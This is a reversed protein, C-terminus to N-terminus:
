AKHFINYYSKVSINIIIKRLILSISCPHYHRRCKNIQYFNFMEKAILLDKENCNLLDLRSYKCILLHAFNHKIVNLIKRKKTRNIDLKSCYEYQSKIAELISFINDNTTKSHSISNNSHIVYYYGSYPIALITESKLFTKYITAVDEFLSLNKPYRIGKWVKCKYFKHPSHSNFLKDKLIEITGNYKNFNVINKFKNRDVNNIIYGSSIVDPNLEDFIKMHIEFYDNKIYDDSDIFTLIDNESNKSLAYNIGVNRAESSGSNQQNFVTLNKYKEKYQDLILKTNDTSGDNIAILVFEKYTQSFISDLCKILYKESNYCPLIVYLM